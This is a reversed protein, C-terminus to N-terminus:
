DKASELLHRTAENIVAHWMIDQGQKPWGMLRMERALPALTDTAKREIRQALAIEQATPTRTM